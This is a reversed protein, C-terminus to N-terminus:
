TRGMGLTWHAWLMSDPDLRGLRWYDHGHGLKPSQEDISAQASNSNHKLRGM